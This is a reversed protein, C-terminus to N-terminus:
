SVEETQRPKRNGQAVPGCIQHQSGLFLLNLSLASCCFLFFSSPLPSSLILKLLDYAILSGHAFFVILETKMGSAEKDLFCGSSKTKGSAPVLLLVCM